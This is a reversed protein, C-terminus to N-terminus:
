SPTKSIKGTTGHRGLGRAYQRLGSRVELITNTKRVAKLSYTQGLSPTKLRAEPIQKATVFSSAALIAVALASFLSMSSRISPLDRTHALILSSRIKYM